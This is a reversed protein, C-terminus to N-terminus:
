WLDDRGPADAILGAYFWRISQAADYVPLGVASAVADRYPPMNACELVIAGVDAHSALLRKAAAVTDETMRARDLTSAGDRITRGFYGDPDVGALLDPSLDAASYTVVGARRGRPLTREVLPLQLLASTMVAVPLAAALERQWRALFGCTTAIGICGAGALDRGAAIFAPLLADSQRHVVKDVTACAVAKLLVPFSFTDPCGIDGRIRPFATDLVLIGLPAGITTM